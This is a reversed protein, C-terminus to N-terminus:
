GTNLMRGPFYSICNWNISSVGVLNHLCVSAKLLVLISSLSKQDSIKVKRDVRQYLRQSVMKDWGPIAREPKGRWLSSGDFTSSNEQSGRVGALGGVEKQRFYKNRERRFVRFPIEYTKRLGANASRLTIEGILKVKPLIFVLFTLWHACSRSKTKAVPSSSIGQTIYPFYFLRSIKKFHSPSSFFSQAFCLYNDWFINGYVQRNILRKRENFQSHRKIYEPIENGLIETSLASMVWPKTQSFTYESLM